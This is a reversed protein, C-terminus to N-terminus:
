QEDLFHNFNNFHITSRILLAIIRICRRMETKHRGSNIISNFINFHKNTTSTSLAIRGVFIEASGQLFAETRFSSFLISMLLKFAGDFSIAIYKIVEKEFNSTNSINANDTLTPCTQRSGDDSIIGAYEARLQSGKFTTSILGTWIPTPSYTGEKVSTYRGSFLINSFTYTRDLSMHASIGKVVPAIIKKMDNIFADSTFVAPFYINHEEGAYLHGISLKVPEANWFTFPLKGTELINQYISLLCKHYSEMFYIKLDFEEQNEYKDWSTAIISRIHCYPTGSISEHHVLSETYHFIKGLYKLAKVITDSKKTRKILQDGYLSSSLASSGLCFSKPEYSSASSFDNSYLHSHMYKATYQALTPKLMTGKISKNVTFKITSSDVILFKLVVETYFNRVTTFLQNESTIKIEPRLVKFKMKLVTQEEISDPELSCHKPDYVEEILNTISNIMEALLDGGPKSFLEIYQSKIAPNIYIIEEKKKPQPEVVAKKTM